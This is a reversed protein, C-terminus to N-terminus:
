VNHTQINYKEIKRIRKALKDKYINERRKWWQSCAYYNGIIKDSWYRSYGKNDVVKGKADQVMPFSIGFTKRSYDKSLM